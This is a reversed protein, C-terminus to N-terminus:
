RQLGVFRPHLSLERSGCKECALREKLQRVDYPPNRCHIFDQVYVLRGCICKACYAEAAWDPNGIIWNYLTLSDSLILRNREPNQSGM